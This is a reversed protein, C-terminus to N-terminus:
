HLLAAITLIEEPVKKLCSDVDCHPPVDDFYCYGFTDKGCIHFLYSRVTEIIYWEAGTRRRVDPVFDETVTVTWNMRGSADTADPSGNGPEM